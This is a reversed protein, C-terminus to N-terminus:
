SNYLLFCWRRFSVVASHPNKKGYFFTGGVAVGAVAVFGIAVGVGISTSKKISSNGPVVTLKGKQTRNSFNNNRTSTYFYEGTSNMKVLGGDFYPTKAANLKACNRPDQNVANVNNGNQQLLQAVTLCNTQGILAMNNRLTASEFLPKSIRTM